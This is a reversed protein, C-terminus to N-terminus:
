VFGPEFLLHIVVWALICVVAIRFWRWRRMGARIRETLTDGPRDNTALILDMTAFGLGFAIWFATWFVTSSM